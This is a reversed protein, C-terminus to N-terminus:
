GAPAMIPVDSEEHVVWVGFVRLGAGDLVYQRGDSWEYVARECGDTFPARGIIPDNKM